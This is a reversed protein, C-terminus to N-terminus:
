ASLRLGTGFMTARAFSTRIDGSMRRLANNFLQRRELARPWGM